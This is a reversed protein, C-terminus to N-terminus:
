ILILMKGKIKMLYILLAKLTNIPIMPFTHVTDYKMVGMIFFYCLFNTLIEESRDPFTPPFEANFSGYRM